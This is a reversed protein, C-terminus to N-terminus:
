AGPPANTPVPPGPSPSPSDTPTRPSGSGPPDTPLHGSGSSATDSPTRSPPQDTSPTDTPTDSTAPATSTPPDTTSPGTTPPATTPPDSTPPDTTPPDTPPPTVDPRRIEGIVRDLVNGAVDAVHLTVVGAYGAAVTGTYVSAQSAHPALAVTAGDDLRLQADGLGSLGDTLWVNVEVPGDTTVTGGSVPSGGGPTLTPSSAIPATRDIRVSATVEQTVPNGASDRLWTRITHDGDDMLDVIDTGAHSFGAVEAPPTGDVSRWLTGPPDGDIAWHARVVVPSGPPVSQANIWEGTAAAGPLDIQLPAVSDDRRNLITIRYVLPEPHDWGPELVTIAVETPVTQGDTDIQPLAIRASVSGTGSAVVQGGVEVEVPASAMAALASLRISRLNETTFDYDFVDDVLLNGGFGEIGFNILEGMTLEFQPIYEASVKTGTSEFTVTRVHHQEPRFMSAEGDDAAFLFKTEVIRDDDDLLRVLVNGGDIDRLGMNFADVRAQTRGDTVALETDVSVRPYDDAPVFGTLTHAVTNHTTDSELLEKDDEAIWARAVVGVSPWQDEHSPVTSVWDRLDIPDSVATFVGADILALSEDDAVTIPPAMPPGEAVGQTFEIHVERGSGALPVPTSNSLTVAVTRKADFQEATAIRTVSVDSIELYINGEDIATTGDSFTATLRYDPSVIQEPVPYQANVTFAQGPATQVDEVTLATTYTSADPDKFAVELATMPVLGTNVVQFGVPLDAEPMLEEYAPLIDPIDIANDLTGSIAYIGADTVPLEFFEDSGEIPVRTTQGSDTTGLFVASISRPATAWADVHDIGMGEPMKAVELPASLILEGDVRSFTSARLYGTSTTAVHGADPDADPDMRPDAGRWLVTVDELRGGPSLVLSFDGSAHTAIPVADSARTPTDALVAGTTDFTAFRLDSSVLSDPGLGSEQWVLLFEGGPASAVPALRPNANVTDIGSAEVTAVVRNTGSGAQEPTPTPRNTDIVTYVVQKSDVGQEVVYALAATGDPLIAATLGAVTGDSGNYAVEAAPSWGTQADWVRYVVTDAGTVTNTVDADARGLRWAVIGRTDNAAVVPGLDAMANNSLRTTQWSDGMRVAAYTETGFATRNISALDPTQGSEATPDTMLRTWSAVALDDDGAVTLGTDGYGGDDIVGRDVWGTGVAEAWAARTDRIDQSGQDSHYVFASGDDFADPQAFPYTGAQIVAPVGNGATWARTMAQTLPGTWQRTGNALYDRSEPEYDVAPAQAAAVQYAAAAAGVEPSTLAHGDIDRGTTARWYASIEEWHGWMASPTTFDISVPTFTASVFLFRAVFQVALSLKANLAGGYESRLDSNQLYRRSLWQNQLNVTGSAAIGIKLAVIAIDLGVGAFVYATGLMRLLVQHDVEWESHPDSWIQEEGDYTQVDEVANLNYNFTMAGSAGLTVTVPVVWALFNQTFEIGAAFGVEFGGGFPRFRWERSVADWEFLGTFRLSSSLAFSPSLDKTLRSAKHLGKEAADSYAASEAAGKWYEGKRMANADPLNMMGGVELQDFNFAPAGDDGMWIFGPDVGGRGGEPIVDTPVGQDSTAEFVGVFTYPDNTPAIGVDFTPVIPTLGTLVGLLGTLLPNDVGLAGVDDMGATLVGPDKVDAIAQTPNFALGLGNVVNIGPEISWHRPTSYNVSVRFQLPEMAGTDLSMTDEDLTAAHHLVSFTSFPHSQVATSQSEASPDVATLQVSAAQGEQPSLGLCYLTSNLHIEPLIQSPGTRDGRELEVATRDRADSELIDFATCTSPSPAPWMHATTSVAGARGNVGGTGEIEVVLPGYSAPFSIEFAYRLVDSTRLRNGDSALDEAEWMVTASGDSSTTMSVSSRTPAMQTASLYTGNKYVGGNIAIDGVYPQGDPRVFYVTTSSPRRLNVLNVPYQDLVTSNREGTALNAHAITGMHMEDQYTSSFVVDSAISSPVYVALEGQANTTETRRAGTGDAFQVETVVKPSVEFIYLKDRLTQVEVDLSATLGLEVHRVSITTEGTHFGLLPYATDPDRSVQGPTAMNTFWAGDENGVTAATSDTSSWEMRDIGAQWGAPAVSITDRLKLRDARLDALLQGSSRAAVWAENSMRHSVGASSRNVSIRLAERAYVMVTASAYSWAADTSNKVRVSAQYTDRAGDSPRHSATVTFSGGDADAGEVVRGGSSFTGPMGSDGPTFEVRSGSVPEGDRTLEFEFASANIPDFGDMTWTFTLAKSEGTELVIQDGSDSALSVKAPSAVTVITGAARLVAGSVLPNPTSILYSYAPAGAISMQTLVGAPVSWGSSSGTVEGSSVVDDLTNADILTAMTEKTLNGRFVHVSYQGDGEPPSKVQNKVYDVNSNWALSAASGRTIWVLGNNGAVDVFPTDSQVVDIPESRYFTSSFPGNGAEIVVRVRGVGGSKGTARLVQDNLEAIDPSGEVVELSWTLDDRYTVTPNVITYGFRANDGGAYVRYLSPATWSEPYIFEIDGAGFVIAGAKTFDAHTIGKKGTMLEWQPNAATGLNRYIEVRLEQFDTANELQFTTSLDGPTGAVPRMAHYDAGWNAGSGLPGEGNIAVVVGQNFFDDGLAADYLWCLHQGSGRCPTSVTVKVETDTPGYASKDVSVSNLGALGMVAPFTVTSPLTPTGANLKFTKGSLDRIEVDGIRGIAGNGADRELLFVHRRSSTQPDAAGVLTEFATGKNIAAQVARVPESFEVVIPVMMGERYEGAPVSVGAIRPDEADVFHPALGVRMGYVPRLHNTLVTEYPVTLSTDFVCDRTGTAPTVYGGNERTVDLVFSRQSGDKLAAVFDAQVDGPPGDATLDLTLPEEVSFEPRTVTHFAGGYGYETTDCATKYQRTPDAIVDAVNRDLGFTVSIPPDDPYSRTTNASLGADFGTIVGEAVLSGIHSTAVQNAVHYVIRSM